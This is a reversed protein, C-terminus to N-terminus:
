KEVEQQQNSPTIQKMQESAELFEELINTESRTLTEEHKAEREESTNRSLLALVDTIYAQLKQKSSEFRLKIDAESSSSAEKTQM